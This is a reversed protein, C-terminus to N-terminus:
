ELIGGTLPVVLESFETDNTKIHINGRLSGARVKEPILSITLQFRDGNPGRESRLRVSDLDTSATVQFDETGLRYVMLTQALREVASQDTAVNMPLSGLDVSEPFTYVRERVLTNAQLVIDKGLVSDTILRIPETKKGAPAAGSLTLTLRYRQGPILTELNITFRDSQSDVGIINLPQARHNTIEISAQTDKGRHTAVYFAPRPQFEIPPIVYGEVRFTVPDIATNEFNVRVVGEFEGFTRKEDLVLIFHGQGGPEIVPTINRALLPPTLQINKVKLQQGTTNGFAIIQKVEQNLMVRGFSLRTVPDVTEDDAWALQGCLALVALYWALFLHQKGSVGTMVSFLPQM